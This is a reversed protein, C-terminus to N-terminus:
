GIAARIPWAGTTSCDSIMKASCPEMPCVVQSYEVSNSWAGSVMMGALGKVTNSLTCSDPSGRPPLMQGELELVGRWGQLFTCEEYCATNKCNM